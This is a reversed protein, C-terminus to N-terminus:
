WFHKLGYSAAVVPAILGVDVLAGVLCGGMIKTPYSQTRNGALTNQMFTGYLVGQTAVAAAAFAIFLGTRKAFRIAPPM